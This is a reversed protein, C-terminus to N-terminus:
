KFAEVGQLTLGDLIGKGHKEIMKRIEGNFYPEDDLNILHWPYGERWADPIPRTQLRSEDTAQSYKENLKEVTSERRDPWRIRETLAYWIHKAIIRRKNAFQTHFVGGDVRSETLPRVSAGSNYPARHHFEYGDYAPKWNLDPLDCFGLTLQSRSWVSDDQQYDHATRVAIMPLELLHGPKLVAFWDRVKPALNATLAEDADIIAFHTGGMERGIELGRQRQGMEAWYTGTKYDHINLRDGFEDKLRYVIDGTADFCRDMFVQVADCWRLAVRLCFEITWQENRVLTLGVIKM